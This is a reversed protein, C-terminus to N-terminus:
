AVGAVAEAIGAVAEAIVKREDEFSQDPLPRGAQKYWYAANERDGEQRHLSAHLWCAIPHELSEILSHAGHWNGAAALSLADALSRKM